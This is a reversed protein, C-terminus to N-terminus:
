GQSSDKRCLDSGQQFQECSSSCLPATQMRWLAPNLIKLSLLLKSAMDTMATLSLSQASKREKCGELMAVYGDSNSNQRDSVIWAVALSDDALSQARASHLDQLSPNSPSTITQFLFYSLARLM